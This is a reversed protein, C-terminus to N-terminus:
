KGVQVQYQHPMWTAFATGDTPITDGLQILPVALRPVVRGYHDTVSLHVQRDHDVWIVGADFAQDRSAQRLESAELETKSPYYWVRRGITPTIVKPEM